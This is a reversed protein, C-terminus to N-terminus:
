SRNVGVSGSIPLIQAMSAVARRCACLPLCACAGPSDHQHNRRMQNMESRAAAADDTLKANDVKLQQLEEQSLQAEHKHREEAIKYRLPIFSCVVLGSAGRRVVCSVSGFPVLESPPRRSWSCLPM